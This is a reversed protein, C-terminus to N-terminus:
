TKQQFLQPSTQPWADEKERHWAPGTFWENKELELVSKGRTGIDAPNLTGEVHRWQDITSSDLIEAVRNAVFVRKKKDARHLWQLVTTSDTCFFAQEIEVDHEDVILQKLRTGYIAAQLELRLISQQKMPAARCKGVVYALEGTQQDRLYAVMCMADLSADAFVHLDVVEVSESLYNRKLTMENM